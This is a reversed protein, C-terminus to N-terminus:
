AAKPPLLAELNVPKLLERLKALQASHVASYHEASLSALVAQKTRAPMLASSEIAQRDLEAFAVIDPQKDFIGLAGLHANITPGVVAECRQVVELVYQGFTSYEKTGNWNTVPSPSVLLPFDGAFNAARAIDLGRHVLSNRLERLYLYNTEGSVGAAGFRSKLADEFAQGRMLDNDKLLDSASMLSVFYNSYHVRLDETDDVSLPARFKLASRLATRRTALYLSLSNLFDRETISLKTSGIKMENTM